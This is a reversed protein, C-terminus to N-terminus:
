DSSLEKAQGNLQPATKDDLSPISRSRGDLDEFIKGMTFSVENTQERKETAIGVSSLLMKRDAHGSSGQMKATQVAAHIIAPIEVKVHGLAAEKLCELFDKNMQNKYFTDRHVGAISCKETITKNFHEPNTFVAILSAQEPTFSWVEGSIPSHIEVTKQNTM